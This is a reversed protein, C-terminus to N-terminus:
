AERRSKASPINSSASSSTSRWRRSQKRQTPMRCSLTREMLNSGRKGNLTVIQSRSCEEPTLELIYGAIFREANRKVAQNVIRTEVGYLEAVDRDLLVRQGRIILIQSEVSSPDLASLGQATGCNFTALSFPSQSMNKSMIDFGRVECVCGKCLM